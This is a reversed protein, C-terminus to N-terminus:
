QLFINANKTIIVINDIIYIIIYCVIYMVLNTQYM